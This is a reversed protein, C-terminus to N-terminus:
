ERIMELKIKSEEDRHIVYSDIKDVRKFIWKYPFKGALLAIKKEYPSFMDLFDFLKKIQELSFYIKDEASAKVELAILTNGSTAFVDPM